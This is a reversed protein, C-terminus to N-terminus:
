IARAVARFRKMRPSRAGSTTTMLVRLKVKDFVTLDDGSDYLYHREIVQNGGADIVVDDAPVAPLVNWSVGSDFSVEPVLTCGAPTTQDLWLDVYRVDGAVVQFERAVYAGSALFSQARLRFDDNLIPTNEATGHLVARLQLTSVLEQLDVMKGLKFNYWGKGTNYQWQVLTTESIELTTGLIGFRGRPSTFNVTFDVQASTATFNAAMLEFKVDVLQEPSWTRMNASRLAVGTYPNKLQGTEAGFKNGWVQTDPNDVKVIFAYERDKVVPVPFDLPFVTVASADNSVALSAAPLISRGLVNQTPIGNEVPVILVEVPTTGKTKFWLKVQSIWRTDPALWTQALPDARVPVFARSTVKTATVVEVTQTTNTTVREYNNTVSVNRLRSDSLYEVEAYSGAGGSLQGSGYFTVLHASNAQNAPVIFTAAFAGNGDAKVTGPASGVVSGGSPTLSVRLGSFEARVDEDPIFGVGTATITIQRATASVSVRVEETSSLLSVRTTSSNVVSVDVSTRVRVTDVAQLRTRPDVPPPTSLELVEVSNTIRQVPLAVEVVRDTVVDTVNVLSAIHRDESPNLSVAAGLNVYEFANVQLALNSNAQLLFSESTYPLLYAGDLFLATSASVSPTHDEFDVGLYCAREVVDLSASYDVSGLDSPVFDLFEDAFVGRKDTPTARGIIEQHLQFAAQNYQIDRVQKLMKRLDIMGLRVVDAPTVVVDAALSEAPVYLSAVTLYQESFNPPTPVVSAKGQALSILGQDSVALKFINPLTFYYDIQVETANDPKVGGATLIVHRTFDVASDGGVITPTNYLEPNGGVFFSNRALFDGPLVVNWNALDEQDGSGSYEMTQLVFQRTYLFEVQYTSGPAPEAGGPAWNIFNGSQVYDDGVVFPTGGQSVEVISHIPWYAEPLADAGNLDGGRVVNRGTVRVRGTVQVVSRVPSNFLTFKTTGTNFIHSEDLMEQTTLSTSTTLYASDLVIRRGRIYGALNSVQAVLQEQDGDVVTIRPPYLLYSGSEEYTRLELLRLLKDWLPRYQKYKATATGDVLECIPYAGSGPGMLGLTATYVLRHSGAYGYNEFGVNPDLLTPDDAETVVEPVLTVGITEVGVGTIAIVAGPVRHIMGLAYLRGPTVTAETRAENVVVELGEIPASKDYLTEGLQEIERRLVSQVENLEASQLAEGSRFLLSKWEPDESPNYRDSYGPVPLM